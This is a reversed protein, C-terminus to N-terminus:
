QGYRQMREVIAAFHPARAATTHQELAYTRATAGMRQRDTVSDILQLLANQWQDPATALRGTIGDAITDRYPELRAAVTPVGLLAAELVKVASKSRRQPNDILPAINIDVQAIHDPLKDWAVVTRREIQVAYRQDTLPSRLDIDGYIRLRTHPRASLVAALAISIHALDEDHVHPTGSFYGIVVVDAAHEPRNDLVRAATAIMSQSLANPNVFVPQVFTSRALAALYDTSFIFATALHMMARTRRIFLMHRAVRVHSFHTDLFSYQRDRLEWVLDDSDFVIPLGRRRAALVLAFTRPGLAVRHMYLLTCGDLSHPGFTGALEIRQTAFGALQAQEIQHCVRYRSPAGIDRYLFAIRSETTTTSRGIM